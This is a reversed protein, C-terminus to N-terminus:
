KQRYRQYSAYAIVPIGVLMYLAVLASFKEVIGPSFDAFVNILAFVLIALVANSIAQLVCDLATKRKLKRMM